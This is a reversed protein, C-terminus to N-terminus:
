RAEFGLLQARVDIVAEEDHSGSDAWDVIPWHVVLVPDHRRRLGEGPAGVVDHDSPRDAVGLIRPRRRLPDLRLDPQDTMYILLNRGGGEEAGQPAPCRLCYEKM